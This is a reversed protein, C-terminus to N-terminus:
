FAQASIECGCRNEGERQKKTSENDLKVWGALTQGFGGLGLRQKSLCDLQGLNFGNRPWFLSNARMEM